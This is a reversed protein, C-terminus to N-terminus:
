RVVHAVDRFDLIRTWEGDEWTWVHDGWGLVQQYHPSVVAGTLAEPGKQKDDDRWLASGRLEIASGNLVPPDFEPSRTNPEHFWRWGDPSSWRDRGAALVFRDDFWGSAGVDVPNGGTPHWLQGDDSRFIEDTHLALLVDPGAILDPRLEPMRRSDGPVSPDADGVQVTWFKGGSSLTSVVLDAGWLVPPGVSGGPDEWIPEWDGDLQLLATSVLNDRDANGRVETGTALWTGEHFLPSQDPDLRWPWSGAVDWERGDVSTAVFASRTVGLDESATGYAILEGNPGEAVRDVQM